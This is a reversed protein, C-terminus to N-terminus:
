NKFIVAAGYGVVSNLENTQDASTSHHLLKVQNAGLAKAAWLVAAIASIGCAFGKSEKETKFVGEPSFAEVQKLMERDLGEATKQPYFHSLDSSAVLLFSKGKLAHTIANALTHVQDPSQTRLMIPILQFPKKLAVQLFPLEIELSHERDHAIPTLSLESHHLEKEIEDLIARDVEIKGLPTQYADHATTLMPAFHFDHYPSLVVVKDFSKSIVSNFAYGATAGSYIHGAHPAIVGIVDGKIEPFIAKKLYNEVSERLREPDRDYWSGSIPSPRINAISPM